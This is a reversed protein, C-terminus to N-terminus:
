GEIMITKHEPVQKQEMKPLSIKLVGDEYRAKVDKETVQDGVYFSRQVAGSYRENRILKGEKNKQENKVGKAASITLYGDQLELKIEDKKFGPLNVELEYSHDLERVDTKMLNRANRGFVGNKRGFFSKDFDRDFDDMWDDMLNEGFLAPMYMMFVGGKQM